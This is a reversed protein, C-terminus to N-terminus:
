QKLSINFIGWYIGHMNIFLLLFFCFEIIFCFCMLIGGHFVCVCFVDMSHVQVVTLYYCNFWVLLFFPCFMGNYMCCIYKFGANLMVQIHLSIHANLAKFLYWVYLVFQPKSEPFNVHLDNCFTFLVLIWMASHSLALVVIILMTLHVWLSLQVYLVSELKQSASLTMVHCLLKETYICVFCAVLCVRLWTFSPFFFCLSLSFWKTAFM